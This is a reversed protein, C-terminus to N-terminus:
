KRHTNVTSGSWGYIYNNQTNYGIGNLTTGSASSNVKSFTDTTANFAILALEKFREKTSAPVALTTTATMWLLPHVELTLIMM